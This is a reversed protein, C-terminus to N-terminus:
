QSIPITDMDTIFGNQVLVGQVLTDNFGSAPSFYVNYYGGVLNKIMFNGAADPYTGISDTGKIAYIAPNAAIPVVTGSIGGDLPQAIARIVPKLIYSGSGTEVISRAADFDLLLTYTFDSKLGQHVNIKLGSQQASPTSLPHTQGNVKISNNNGLVLRVQSITGTPLDGNAIVTDTGNTLELLNYIGPNSPVTIWGPGEDIHVQVHSIDINVEEYNGPSDILKVTLNASDGKNDKKCSFLILLFFAALLPYTKIRIDKM